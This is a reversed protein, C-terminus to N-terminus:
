GAPFRVDFYPARPRRCFAHSGVLLSSILVASLSVVHEHASGVYEIVQACGGSATFQCDHYQFALGSDAFRSKRLHRLAVCRLLAPDRSPHLANLSVSRKGVATQGLQEGCEPGVESLQWVWLLRDQRARDAPRRM